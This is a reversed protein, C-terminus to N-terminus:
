DIIHVPVWGLVSRIKYLFFETLYSKDQRTIGTILATKM